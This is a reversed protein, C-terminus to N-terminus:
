TSDAPDDRLWAIGFGSEGYGNGSYLMYRTGKHDFVYPYAVMESDWGDKSPSLGVEEDLRMWSCGDPSEAYGIDYGGGGEAYCYWMRYRDDDEIIVPRAIRTEDDSAYDICVTGDRRWSIGNDSEAYKIHYNPIAGEHDNTEVETTTTYWMRWRDGEKRVCSSLTMYPDVANRGVLPAPSHKNFSDGDGIALGIMGYFPVRKGQMWGVYYLYKRGEHTVISSPFVGSDDFTGLPGLEVVPEPSVEIVETPCNLDIDVYGIQSRNDDNRSAFYVRYVPGHRHDAIPLAAHSRAWALDGGPRFVRGLKEWNM